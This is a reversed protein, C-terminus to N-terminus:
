NFGKFTPCVNFLAQVPGSSTLQGISLEMVIIPLVVFFLAIAYVFLFAVLFFQLKLSIFFIIKYVDAM